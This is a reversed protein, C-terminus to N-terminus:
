DGKDARNWLERLAPCVYGRPSCKEINKCQRCLNVLELVEVKNVEKDAYKEIMKDLFNITETLVERWFRINRLKM